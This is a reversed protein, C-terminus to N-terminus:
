IPGKKPALIYIQGDKVEAEVSKLDIELDYYDHPIGPRSDRDFHEILHLLDDIAEQSLKM